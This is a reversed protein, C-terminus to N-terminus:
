YKLLNDPLDARNQNWVSEATITGNATLTRTGGCSLAFPRRFTSMLRVM